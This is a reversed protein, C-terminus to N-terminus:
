LMNHQNLKSGMIIQFRQDVLVFLLIDVLAKNQLLANIANQCM